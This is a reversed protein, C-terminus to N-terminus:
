LMDSVSVLRLVCKTYIDDHGHRLNMCSDNKGDNSNPTWKIGLNKWMEGGVDDRWEGCVEEICIMGRIIGHDKEM